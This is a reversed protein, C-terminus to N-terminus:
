GDGKFLEIGRALLKMGRMRADENENIAWSTLTERARITIDNEPPTAAWFLADALEVRLLDVATLWSLRTRSLDGLYCAVLACDRTPCKLAASKLLRFEEHYPRNGGAIKNVLVSIQEAFDKCKEPATKSSPQSPYCLLWLRLNFTTPLIAPKRQSNRQWERTRMSEIYNIIDEIVPKTNELWAKKDPIDHDSAHLSPELRQVFRNWHTFSLTPAQLLAYAQEFL